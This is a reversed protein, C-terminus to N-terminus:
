GIEGCPMAVILTNQAQWRIKVAAGDRASFVHDVSGNGDFKLYVDYHVHSTVFSGRDITLIATVGEGPRPLQQVIEGKVREGCGSVAAALLLIVARSTRIIRRTTVSAPMSRSM